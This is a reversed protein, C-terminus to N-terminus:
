GPLDSPAPVRPCNRLVRTDNTKQRKNDWGTALRVCICGHAGLTENSKPTNFSIAHINMRISRLDPAIEGRM